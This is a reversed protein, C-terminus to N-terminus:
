VPFGGRTTEEMRDLTKGTRHGIDREYAMVLGSWSGVHVPLVRGQVLIILYTLPQKDYGASPNPKPRALM